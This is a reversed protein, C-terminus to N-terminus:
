DRPPAKLRLTTSQPTQEAGSSEAVVTVEIDGLDQLGALPLVLAPHDTSRELETEGAGALRVHYADAKPTPPWTLHLTGDPRLTAVLRLTGGRGRLVTQTVHPKTATRWIAAGASAAVTVALLAVLV